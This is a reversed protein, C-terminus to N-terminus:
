CLRTSGDNQGRPKNVDWSIQYILPHKYVIPTNKKIEALCYRWSEKNILSAYSTKKPICTCSNSIRYMVDLWQTGYVKQINCLYDTTKKSIGNPTADIGLKQPSHSFYIGGSKAKGGSCSMLMAPHLNPNLREVSTIPAKAESMARSINQILDFDLIGYAPSMILTDEHVVQSGNLIGHTLYQIYDGYNGFLVRQETQTLTKAFRDGHDDNTLITISASQPIQSLWDNINDCLLSEIALTRYFFNDFRSHVTCNIFIKM